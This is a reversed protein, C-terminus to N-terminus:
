AIAFRITMPYDRWSDDTNGIQNKAKDESFFEHIAKLEVPKLVSKLLRSIDLLRNVDEISATPRNNSIIANASDMADKWSILYTCIILGKESM